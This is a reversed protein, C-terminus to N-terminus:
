IDIRHRRAPFFVSEVGLSNQSQAHPHHPSAGAVPRSQVTLTGHENQARAPLQHTVCHEAFNFLSAKLRSQSGGKALGSAPSDFM